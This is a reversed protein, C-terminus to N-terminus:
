PRAQKRTCPTVHFFIGTHFTDELLQNCDACRPGKEKWTGTNKATTIIERYKEGDEACDWCTLVDRGAMGYEAARYLNMCHAPPIVGRPDPSDEVLDGCPREGTCGHSYVSRGCSECTGMFKIVHTRGCGFSQFFQNKKTRWSLRETITKADESYRRLADQETVFYWFSLGKHENVDFYDYVCWRYRHGHEDTEHTNTRHLEYRHGITNSM